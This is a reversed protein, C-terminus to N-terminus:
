LVSQHVMEVAGLVDSNGHISQFFPPASSFSIGDSKEMESLFDEQGQPRLGELMHKNM